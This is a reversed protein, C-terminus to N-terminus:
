CLHAAHYIRHLLCFDKSYDAIKKVFVQSKLKARVLILCLLYKLDTKNGCQCYMFCEEIWINIM